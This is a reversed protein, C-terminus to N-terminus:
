PAQAEVKGHKWEDLQLFGEFGCDETMCGVGHDIVGDKGIGHLRGLLIHHEGVTKTRGSYPCRFTAGVVKGNEDADARWNQRLILIM